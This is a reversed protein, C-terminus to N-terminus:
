VIHASFAPFVRSFHLYSPDFYDGKKTLKQVKKSKAFRFRKRKSKFLAPRPRCSSATPQLRRRSPTRGLSLNRCHRQEGLPFQNVRPPSEDLILAQGGYREGGVDLIRGM